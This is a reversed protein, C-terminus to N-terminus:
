NTLYSLFVVCSEPENMNSIKMNLLFLFSIFVLFLPVSCVFCQGSEYKKGSFKDTCLTHFINGAATGRAVPSLFM